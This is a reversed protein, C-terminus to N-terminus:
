KRYERQNDEIVDNLLKILDIAENIFINYTVELDNDQANFNTYLALRTIDLQNFIKELNNDM